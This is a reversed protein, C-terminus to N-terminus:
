KANIRRVITFLAPEDELNQIAQSISKHLSQYLNTFVGSLTFGAFKGDENFCIKACRNQNRDRVPM